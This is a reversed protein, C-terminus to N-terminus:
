TCPSNPDTSENEEVGSTTVVQGALDYDLLHFRKIMDYQSVHTILAQRDFDEPAEAGRADRSHM